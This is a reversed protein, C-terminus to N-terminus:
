GLLSLGFAKDRVERPFIESVIAPTIPGNSWCHTLGVIFLMAVEAVCAAKNTNNPYTTTLASLILLALSQITFGAILLPKRGFRDVTFTNVLVILLQLAAQIGNIALAQHGTNWGLSKYILATYITLAAIGGFQQLSIAYIGYALRKRTGASSFIGWYGTNFRKHYEHSAVLEHFELRVHGDDVTGSRLKALANLCLEPSDPHKELLWRPSKIYFFSVCVFAIGIPIQILNSVRWAINYPSSYFSM